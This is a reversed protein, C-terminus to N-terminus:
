CQLGGRLTSRNQQEDIWGMSYRRQPLLKWCSEVHTGGSLHVNWIGRSMLWTYVRAEAKMVDQGDSLGGRGTLANGLRVRAAPAWGPWDDSSVKSAGVSPLVNNAAKKVPVPM